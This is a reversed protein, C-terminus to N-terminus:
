KGTGAVMGRGDARVAEQKVGSHRKPHRNQEAHNGPKVAVAVLRRRLSFLESFRWSLSKPSRHCGASAFRLSSQLAAAVGSKSQPRFKWLPTASRKGGCDLFSKTADKRQFGISFKRSAPQAQRLIM